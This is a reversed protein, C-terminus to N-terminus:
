LCFKISLGFPWAGCCLQPVGLRGDEFVLSVPLSFAGTAKKALDDAYSNAIRQCYVVSAQGFSELNNCIYQILQTHNTNAQGRNKVWDVAIKSDSAITLCRETLDPRSSLLECAKAIALIEAAISDHIGVFSSFFCM